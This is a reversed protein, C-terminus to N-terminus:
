HGDGGAGGSFWYSQAANKQVSSAQVTAASAVSAGLTLAAIAALILKKM